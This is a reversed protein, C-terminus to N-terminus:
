GPGPVFGPGWPGWAAWDWRADSWQQAIMQQQDALRQQQLYAQYRGYAEQSGIYLCTCVLPDGYVYSVSDGHVRQMLRHPPLESLMAQRQPMNAPKVVFGAAALNDEQQSIRQQPSECGAVALIAMLAIFSGMWPARWAQLTSGIAMPHRKQATVPPLCVHAWDNVGGWEGCAGSRYLGTHVLIDFGAILARIVPRSGKPRVAQRRQWSRPRETQGDPGVARAQWLGERHQEEAAVRERVRLLDKRALLGVLRGDRSIVPVRGAEASVMRDAVDGVPEDPYAMVLDAANIANGLHGQPPNRVWELVDARSVMGVVRRDHDIVPYSKHRPGSETFFALTEGISLDAPLTDVPTAMVERVATLAFPDAHYERVIHHGRRAIKETLISRKLLLATVAYSTACAAFLPVIAAFDGTLEVAFLSATLPARMTGGMMAAMGLLAWFGPGADPLGYGALTGLAGGMILLPALSVV